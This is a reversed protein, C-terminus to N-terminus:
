RTPPGPLEGAGGWYGLTFDTGLARTKLEAIGGYFDHNILWQRVMGNAMGDFYYGDEHLFYPKITVVTDANIKYSVEAFASWVDFSQRNYGYWNLLYGGAFGPAKPNPGRL